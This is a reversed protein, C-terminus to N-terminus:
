LPQALRRTRLPLTVTFVAGDRNAVSIGGGHRRVLKQVLALGTGRRRDAAAAKTTYGDVFVLDPDAVGPGNDAVSLVLGRGPDHHLEVRVQPPHGGTPGAPGPSRGAAADIANDILNGLVTVLLGPDTDTGTLPAESEVELRVGREAAGAMKALLLAVVTPEGISDKLSEAIGAATASVESLYRAADDPRGLELLGAVVHMRNAHEHQQARLAEAFNRIGNLEGLLGVVDTRDRLTTVSGLDVGGVRVPKRNVM